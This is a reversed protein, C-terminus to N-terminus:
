GAYVGHAKVAEIFAEVNEMSTDAQVIHAPSCMYGGGAGLIDIKHAIDREIEDRTGNPLLYQQDIAGWFSLRDGLRAKLAEPEHGPVNPQVPNFVDMGIEVLEDLIPAIAGDSHYMVLLDPNAAKLEGFLAAFRPKFVERWMKPSIMMGTQSGFDDGTWIGDVGLEVLRKGVGLSFELVRDLLVGVYPEGMSMDIMFKELGVMHWAMEFMTLELDGVIFYDDKFREIDARAGDFRGAALPDPFPFRRVEDASSVGALPAEIVEMYLPGQRMVMGFENVVCGDETTPHSYGAPLGGGVVVCDSGMATRLENASIRYTVDEYYSTTYRVPIGRRAGFAELLSRCLDFQLPVRDPLGDRRLARMVRERSNV